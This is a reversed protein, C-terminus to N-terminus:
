TSPRLSSVGERLTLFSVISAIPSESHHLRILTGTQCRRIGTSRGSSLNVAQLCVAFCASIKGADCGWKCWHSLHIWWSSIM